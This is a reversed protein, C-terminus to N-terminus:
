KNLLFLGAIPMSYYMKPLKRGRGWFMNIHEEKRETHTLFIMPFFSFGKM